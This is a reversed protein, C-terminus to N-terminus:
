DLTSLTASVLHHDSVQSDFVKHDLVNLNSDAFIYDIRLLPLSGGYTTGWGCGKEYFSDKLDKGLLQTSYSLPHDNFDGSLIVPYPSRNAHEKIRSAQEARILSAKKYRSLVDRVGLWARKQTFDGDQILEDAKRSVMNSRFHACYMRVRKQGIELDAWLCGNVNSEFDFTGKDVIPFKSLVKVGAYHYEHDFESGAYKEMMSTAYPNIEQLCIVDLQPDTLEHFLRNNKRSDKKVKKLGFVNFVGINFHAKSLDPGACSFNFHKKISSACFVMVLLSLIFWGKKRFIWYFALLLHFILIVPFLGALISPIVSLKPQIGSSLSAMILWASTFFTLFIFIKRIM